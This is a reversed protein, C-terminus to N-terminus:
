QACEYQGFVALAPRLGDFLLQGQSAKVVQQVAVELRKDACPAFGAPKAHPSLEPRQRQWHAPVQAHGVAYDGEWARSCRVQPDLRALTASIDRANFAAYSIRILKHQASM